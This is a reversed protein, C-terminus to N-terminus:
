INCKIMDIIIQQGILPSLVSICFQPQLPWFTSLIGFRFTVLFFIFCNDDIVDCDVCDDFDHYDAHEGRVLGRWLGLGAGDGRLDSLVADGCPGGAIFCLSSSSSM